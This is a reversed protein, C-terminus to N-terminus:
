KFERIKINRYAVRDGHDQLCIYGKTPKGFEPMSKFKSAAVLQNWENGGKEYAVILEGNLWHEVRPGKIVIKTQNWEGAPKCVDKMPKYLGYCSGASTYPNKGDPHKANDLVQYEPGTAYAPGSTEQVHYFIGSNGGPAVKWEIHLEFNEFQRDTIIDGAGKVRTLAGDVVQWGPPCSKQKYGRWGATTEGDFLLAFGAETEAATLTNQKAAKDDAHILGVAAVAFVVPLLLRM